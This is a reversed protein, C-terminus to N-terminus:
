RSRRRILGLTLSFGALVAAAPEPVFSAEVASLSEGAFPGSAYWVRAPGFNGLVLTGAPGQGPAVDRLFAIVGPTPEALFTSDSKFVVVFSSASLSSANGVVVYVNRGEFATGGVQAGPTASFVGALNPTGNGMTVSAGFPQFSGAVAQWAAPNHAAASIQADTSGFYGVAVTGLHPPALVGDFTIPKTLTITPGTGFNATVVIVAAPSLGPILTAILALLRTQNVVRRSM